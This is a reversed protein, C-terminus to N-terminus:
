KGSRDRLKRVYELERKNRRIRNVYEEGTERGKLFGFYREYDFANKKYPVLMAVPKGRKEIVVPNETTAVSQIYSALDDRFEFISVRNM